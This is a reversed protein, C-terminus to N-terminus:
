DERNVVYGACTRRLEGLRVLVGLMVTERRTCKRDLAKRVLKDAPLPGDRAALVLLDKEDFASGRMEKEICAHVITGLDAAATATERFNKGDRGQSWAWYM